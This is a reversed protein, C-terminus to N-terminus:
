AKYFLYIVSLLLLRVTFTTKIKTATRFSVFVAAPVCSLASCCAFTFATVTPIDISSASDSFCTKLTNM